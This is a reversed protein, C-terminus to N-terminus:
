PLTRLLLAALRKPPGHRILKGTNILPAFLYKAMGRNKATPPDVLEAGERRYRKIIEKSPKRNNFIFYDLVNKGLYKEIEKIFDEARFGDTEGKKTMLNCFYVKTAKSSRVEEKMRKVLLNPLISTYLDGPAFIILDASRLARRVEPNLHAEPKLWIKQIPARRRTKPIDIDTEGRIIKGDKLRAYLHVDNLTVPIVEGNINLIRSAEKVASSFNGTVKELVSLFLNGFSHDRLGGSRFRYNFLARMTRSSESLAVLARRVDGPPLVGYQDRLIGTSGGDDAMSVIASLHVPHDKLASLIIFTGTGGGVVVINKM